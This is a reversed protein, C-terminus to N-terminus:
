GTSISASNFSSPGRIATEMPNAMRSITYYSIIEFFLLPPSVGGSNKRMSTGRRVQPEPCDWVMGLYFRNIYYTDKM